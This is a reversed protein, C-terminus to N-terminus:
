SSVPIHFHHWQLWSARSSQSNNPSANPMSDRKSIGHAFQRLLRNAHMIGYIFSHLPPLSFHSIEEGPYARNCSAATCSIWMTGSLTGHTSRAKPKWTKPVWMQPLSVRSAEFSPSVPKVRSYDNGGRDDLPILPPLRHCSTCPMATLGSDFTKSPPLLGEPRPSLCVYGSGPFRDSKFIGRSAGFLDTLYENM